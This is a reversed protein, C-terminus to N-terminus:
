TASQKFENMNERTRVFNPDTEIRQKSVGWKRRVFSKGDKKFFTLNDVTSEINLIGDAKAM